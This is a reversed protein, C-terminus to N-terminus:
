LGVFDTRLCYALGAPGPLLLPLQLTPGPEPTPAPAYITKGPPPEEDSVAVTVAEGERGGERADAIPEETAGVLDRDPSM